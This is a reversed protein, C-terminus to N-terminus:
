SGMKFTRNRHNSQRVSDKTSTIKAPFEVPNTKGIITLDGKVVYDEKSGAKPTISKLKFTAEPFQGVKFFDDSSLHGELKKQHEPDAKMDEDAITKMDMAVDATKIAGKADTEIQGSKVKINGNHFSGIKKRGTKWEVKSATTDIKFVDALAFGAALVLTSLILARM